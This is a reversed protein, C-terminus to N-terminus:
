TFVKLNRLYFSKLHNTRIFLVDKFGRHLSFGVHKMSYDPTHLFDQKLTKAIVNLIDILFQDLSIILKSLALM